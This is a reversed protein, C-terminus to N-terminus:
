YKGRCFKGTTPNFYIPYLDDTKNLNKLFNRINRVLKVYTLNGTVRSLYDFELELSGFESLILCGDNVWEHHKANKKNM